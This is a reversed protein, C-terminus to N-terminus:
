YIKRKRFIVNVIRDDCSVAGMKIFKTVLGSIEHALEGRLSGQGLNVLGGPCLPTSNQM